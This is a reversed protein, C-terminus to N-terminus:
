KRKVIFKQIGSDMTALIKQLPSTSYNEGFKLYYSDLEDEVRDSLQSEDDLFLNQFEFSENFLKLPAENHSLETHWKIFKEIFEYVFKLDPKIEKLQNNNIKLKDKIWGLLNLIPDLEHENVSSFVTRYSNIFLGFKNLLHKGNDGLPLDKLSISFDKSNNSHPSSVKLATFRNSNNYKSKSFDVAALAAILEVFHSSNLQDRGGLSYTNVPMTEIDGVVYNVDSKVDRDYFPIAGITNLIFTSSDPKIPENITHPSKLYFYPTLIVGGVKNSIGQSKLLQSIVPYGAAGTGGFISAFIFAKNSENARLNHLTEKYFDQDKIQHMVVSGIPPVGRFGFELDLEKQNKSFLLDVLIREEASLTNYDIVESLNKSKLTENQKSLPNWYVPKKINTYFFSGESPENLKSRIRSYLTILSTTRSLNGNDQDPDILVPHVEKPGFGAGCLFTLAELCKAGSGGVSFIYLNDLNEEM